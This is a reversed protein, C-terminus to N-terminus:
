KSEKKCLGCSNSNESADPCSEHRNKPPVSGCAGRKIKSKGTILWGIALLSVASLVVIFAIIITFIITSM